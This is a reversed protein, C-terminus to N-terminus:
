KGNTQSDREEYSHSRRRLRDILGMADYPARVKADNDFYVFCDVGDELWGSVRTAWRDLADATYGSTYLEDAGHLRLYALGGPVVDFAPWKGASDAIVLAIDHEYALDIAAQTAFSEHRVEVAHRLPRDTDVRLYERDETVREDHRGGVESAATTSRPLLEFFESMRGPDFRLTPPLQWLVPALKPGLALLGSALFNALPAEIDSLKKMHTIFRPAKVSFVFDDPTRARWDLYSRPKQLAYFSGNVEISTLREAAYELERKQPVGKPYFDGRWGPYSWGSIGVRAEALAAEETFDSYRRPVRPDHSHSGDADLLLQKEDVGVGPPESRHRM